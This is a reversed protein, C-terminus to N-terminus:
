MIKKYSIYEMIKKINLSSHIFVREGETIYEELKKRNGVILFCYNKPYYHLYKTIYSLTTDSYFQLVDLYWTKKANRLQIKLLPFYKEKVIDSNFGIIDDLHSENTIGELIGEPQQFDENNVLDKNSVRLFYDRDNVNCIAELKWSKQYSSFLFFLDYFKKSYNRQLFIIKKSPAISIIWEEDNSRLLIEIGLNKILSIIRPIKNETKKIHLCMKTAFEIIGGLTYLNYKQLIHAPTIASFSTLYYNSPLDAYLYSLSNIENETELLPLILKHFTSDDVVTKDDMNRWYNSSITFIKKRIEQINDSNRSQFVAQKMIVKVIAQSIKPVWYQQALYQLKEQLHEQTQLLSNEMMSLMEQIISCNQQNLIFKDPIIINKKIKYNILNKSLM